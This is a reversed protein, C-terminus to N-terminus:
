EYDGPELDITDLYARYSIRESRGSQSLVELEIDNSGTDLPLNSLDYQGPDLAFERQFMGNRLVRITAPEQLVIQRGGGLVNTRFSDFRQRQRAVGIGGMEVFGQRGRTDPTLDGLYWRRYEDPQDYVFRAHRRYVEYEETDFAERGQVDAEFVVNGFRAAGTLFVSPAPMGQQASNHSLALSTNLYASFPEPARGPTERGGTEYLLEVARRTPDIRLILIVLQAPDYELEIGLANLEAPTVYTHDALASTLEFQAELTLLPSVIELLSPRDILLEDNRTIVVSVEGLIRNNFQMPTTLSIDHDFPNLNPRAEANPTTRPTDQALAVAPCILSGM